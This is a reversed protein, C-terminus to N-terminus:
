FKFIDLASTARPLKMQCFNTMDQKAWTYMINRSEYKELCIEKQCLIYLM